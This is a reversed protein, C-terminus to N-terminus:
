LAADTLPMSSILCGTHSPLLTEERSEREKSGNKKKRVDRCYSMVLPFDIAVLAISITLDMLLEEECCRLRLCNNVHSVQM